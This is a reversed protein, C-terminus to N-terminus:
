DVSLPAWANAASADAVKSPDWEKYVPNSADRPIPDWSWVLKGTRADFARVIGLEEVVARNDGISSGVVVKGDIIAPPSTVLYDRWEDGEEFKSRVDKM